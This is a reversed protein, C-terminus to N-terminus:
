QFRVEVYTNEQLNTVYKEPCRKRPVGGSPQKRIHVIYLSPDFDRKAPKVYDKM